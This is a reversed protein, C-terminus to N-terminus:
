RCLQWHSRHRCCYKPSENIGLNRSVLSMFTNELILGNVREPNSAALNIAVAGGLSQGYLVVKTDELLPHSRIYDLALSADGKIGKESPAGESLGYRCLCDLDAPRRLPFQLSVRSLLAYVRQM